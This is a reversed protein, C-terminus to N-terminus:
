KVEEIKYMKKSINKRFWANFVKPESLLFFEAEKLVQAEVVRFLKDLAEEAEKQTSSSNAGTTTEPTTIAIEYRCTKENLFPTLSEYTKWNPVLAKPNPVCDKCVPEEPPPLDVECVDILYDRNYDQFKLFKSEAM